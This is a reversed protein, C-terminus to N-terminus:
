VVSEFLGFKAHQIAKTAATLIREDPSEKALKALRDLAIQSRTASLAEIVVLVTDVNKASLETVLKHEAQTSWKGRFERAAKVRVEFEESSNLVSKLAPNETSFEVTRGKLAERAAASMEPAAGARHRVSWFTEGLKMGAIISGFMTGIVIAAFAGPHANSWSSLVGGMAVIGVTSVIGVPLGLDWCRDLERYPVRPSLKEDAIKRLTDVSKKTGLCGLAEILNSEVNKREIASDLHDCYQWIAWRSVLEGLKERYDPTLLDVLKQIDPRIKVLDFDSGYSHPTLRSSLNNYACLSVIEPLAVKAGTLAVIAVARLDAGDARWPIPRELIESVFDIFKESPYPTLAKLVKTEILNRAALVSGARSRYDPKFFEPGVDTSLGDLLLERATPSAAHILFDDVLIEIEEVSNPKADLLEQWADIVARDPLVAPVSSVEESTITVVLEGEPRITWAYENAGSIDSGSQAATKQRTQRATSAEM